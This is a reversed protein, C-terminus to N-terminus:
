LLQRTRAPLGEETPKGTVVSSALVGATLAAMAAMGVVVLLATVPVVPRWRRVPYRLAVAM